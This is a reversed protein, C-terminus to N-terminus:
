DAAPLLAILEYSTPDARGRGITDLDCVRQVRLSSERGYFNELRADPLRHNVLGDVRCKRFVMTCSRLDPADPLHYSHQAPIMQQLVLGNSIAAAQTRGLVENVWTLEANDAIIVMGVGGVRTLQIARELFTIVSEGDNHQGWPPNIHFADFTAILDPPLPDIVNYTVANIRHECGFDGAFRNISNVMREDFDLVAISSPGYDLVRENMLHALALGVADGDGVFVVRRKDFQRALFEAHVIMDGAKMYIQDFERLPLPRNEVIDSLANLALRLDLSM